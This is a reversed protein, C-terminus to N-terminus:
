FLSFIGKQILWVAGIVTLINNINFMSFIFLIVVIIDIASIWSFFVLSKVLIYAIFIWAFSLGLYMTLIMVIGSLIDFIGLIKIM